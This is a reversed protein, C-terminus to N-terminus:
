QRTRAFMKRVSGLFLFRPNGKDDLKVGILEDYSKIDPSFFPAFRQIQSWEFGNSVLDYDDKSIPGPLLSDLEFKNNGSYIRKGLLQRSLAAIIRVGKMVEKGGVKAYYYSSWQQSDNVFIWEKPVESPPQKKRSDFKVRKIGQRTITGNNDIEINCMSLTEPVTVRGRIPAMTKARVISRLSEFLLLSAGSLNFVSSADDFKAFALWFRNLSEAFRRSRKLLTSAKSKSVEVQSQLRDRRKQLFARKHYLFQDDGSLQEFAEAIAKFKEQKGGKDPHHIMSLTRYQSQVLLKIQSDSLGKFIAPALGLVAFPNM